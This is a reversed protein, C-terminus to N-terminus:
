DSQPSTADRHRAQTTRNVPMTMPFDSDPERPYPPTKNPEASSVDLAAGSGELHVTSVALQVASVALQVSSV